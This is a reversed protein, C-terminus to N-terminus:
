KVLSKGLSSGRSSGKFSSGLVDLGSKTPGSRPSSCGRIANARKFDDISKYESLIQTLKPDISLSNKDKRYHLFAWFKELGYLNNREYDMLTLEQFENFLEPRFKKELGYSYFRFLCETGYGYHAAADECALSKFERYMRKNFHKRLFHSWFRFLSNMEPSQGVGLRKRDRIARDHFRSYKNQIFGNDKLLEHSPHEFKPFSRGGYSGPTGPDLNLHGFSSSLSGRPLSSSSTYTDGENGNGLIWGIPEQAKHQRTDRYALPAAGLENGLGEPLSSLGSSKDRVPIFKPSLYPNQKRSTNPVSSGKLESQIQHFHQPDMVGVKLNVNEFPTRIRKNIDKQYFHLGEKIMEDLDNNIAKREYPIHPRDRRRQTVILLSSVVEDGVDEDSDYEDSSYNYKNIQSSDLHEEDLQFLADDDQAAKARIIPSNRPVRPKNKSPSDSPEVISISPLLFNEQNVKSNNRALSNSVPPPIYLWSAWDGRRRVKLGIIELISSTQIASCIVAIDTCLRKVRNFSAILSLPVFGEQDMQKRFFIDKCLNATSFYFEFQQRIVTRLEQLCTPIPMEPPFSGGPMKNKGNPRLESSNSLSSSQKAPSAIAAYTNSAEFVTM